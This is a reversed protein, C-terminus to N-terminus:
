ADLLDRSKPLEHKDLMDKAADRIEKLGPHTSALPAILDDVAVEEAKCLQQALQHPVDHHDPLASLREIVASAESKDHEIRQAFASLYPDQSLEQLVWREPATGGPLQVYNSQDAILEEKKFWRGIDSESCDGDFVCRAPGPNKARKHAGLQAAVQASSGIPIVDVRKRIKPSLCFSVLAAAFNDEVYFTAEPNTLGTINAMAFRTTPSQVLRHETGIRDLLARGERPLSDIVHSSHTTLIIQQKKKSIIRTLADVLHRQAEPHLGHEIEEVILLGGVPLRQLTSLISIMANEGAGMDFGNYDTAATCRALSAGDREQVEISSYRQGFIASMADLLNKEIKHIRTKTEKAFQRRVHQLEAPPLIRSLSIFEIPRRPFPRTMSRGLDPITRWRGKAWRREIEVDNGEHSFAFRVTLGDHPPDNPRRFFFDTWAYSTLRPQRRKPRTAWPAVTWAAPRYSSFTALALLTSKGVGNRGSIATIPYDFSVRLSKIGRLAVPGEITMGKLLPQEFSKPPENWFKRLYNERHNLRRGPM